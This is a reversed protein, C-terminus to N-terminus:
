LIFLSQSHGSLSSCVPSSSSKSNQSCITSRWKARPIREGGVEKRLCCSATNRAPLLLRSGTGQLCFHCFCCSPSRPHPHYGARTLSKNSFEAVTTSVRHSFPQYPGLPSMASGPPLCSSPSLYDSGERGLVATIKHSFGSVTSNKAPFIPLFSLPHLLLLKLILHLCFTETLSAGQTLDTHLWPFGLAQLGSPSLLKQCDLIGLLQRQNLIPLPLQSLPHQGTIPPLVPRCPLPPWRGSM